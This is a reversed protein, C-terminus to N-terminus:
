ECGCGGCGHDETRNKDRNVTINGKSNISVSLMMEGLGFFAGNICRLSNKADLANNDTSDNVSEVSFENGDPINLTSDISFLIPLCHPTKPNINEANCSYIWTRLLSERLNQLSMEGSFPNHHFYHGFAQECFKHYDRTHLIFEHWAVDVVRSPMSFLQNNYATKIEFYHKLEQKVLMLDDKSLNPYTSLIKKDLSEPFQYNALFIKKSKNSDATLFIPKFANSKFFNYLMFAVLIFFILIVSTVSNIPIISIISNLACSGMMMIILVLLIKGM